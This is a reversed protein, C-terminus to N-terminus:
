IECDPYLEVIEFKKGSKEELVKLLKKVQEETLSWGNGEVALAQAGEQTPDEKIPREQAWLCELPHTDAGCMKRLAELAIRTVYPNEFSPELNEAFAELEESEVEVARFSKNIDRPEMYMPPPPIPLADWDIALQEPTPEYVRPTRPM